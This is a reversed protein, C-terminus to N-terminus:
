KESESDGSGSSPNNVKIYYANIRKSAELLSKIANVLELDDKNHDQAKRVLNDINEQMQNHDQITFPKVPPNTKLKEISSNETKAM